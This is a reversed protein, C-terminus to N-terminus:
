LSNKFLCVKELMALDAHIKGTKKFCPLEEKKSIDGGVVNASGPGGHPRPKQQHAMKHSHHLPHGSVTGQQSPQSYRGNVVGGQQSTVSKESHPPHQQSAKGGQQGLVEGPRNAHRSANYVSSLESDVTRNGEQGRQVALDPHVPISSLESLDTISMSDNLDPKSAVGTEENQAATERAIAAKAKQDQVLKQFRKLDLVSKFPAGEPLEESM